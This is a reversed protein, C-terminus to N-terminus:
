EGKKKKNMLIIGTLAGLALGIGAIICSLVIVRSDIKKEEDDKDKKPEEPETKRQEELLSPGDYEGVYKLDEVEYEYWGKEGDIMVYYIFGGTRQYFQAYTVIETGKKVKKGNFDALDKKAKHISPSQFLYAYKYQVSDIKCDKGKYEFYAEEEKASVFFSEFVYGDRIEGCTSQQDGYIIANGYDVAVRESYVWGKIDGTSVYFYRPDPTYYKYTLTVDELRGVEEYAESPGARVVVEDQIYIKKPENEMVMDDKYSVKGKAVVDEAKVYIVTKKYSAALYIEGEMDMQYIITLETGKNLTGASKGEVIDGYTYYDVGSASVVEVEYEDNEPAAVDAKAIFPVLLM